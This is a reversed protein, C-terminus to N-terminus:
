TNESDLKEETSIADGIQTWHRETLECGTLLELLPLNYGFADMKKKLEELAHATSDNVTEAISALRDNRCPM